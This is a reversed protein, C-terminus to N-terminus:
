NYASFDLFYVANITSTRINLNLHLSHDNLHMENWVICRKTIEQVFTAM